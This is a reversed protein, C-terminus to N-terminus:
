VMGCPISSHFRVKFAKTAGEVWMYLRKKQLAFDFNTINPSKQSKVSVIHIGEFLMAFEVMVTFKFKVFPSM